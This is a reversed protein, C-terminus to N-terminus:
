GRKFYRNIFTQIKSFSGQIEYSETLFQETQTDFGLFGNKLLINIIQKVEKNIADKSNEDWYPLSICIESNFLSVQYSPFNLEYYDKQSIDEVEFELGIEKLEAIIKDKLDRNIYIDEEPNPDTNELLEYVNDFNLTTTKIFDLSYSM